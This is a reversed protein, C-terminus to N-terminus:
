AGHCKKYKKGSGCPCPDNRGVPPLPEAGAIPRVNVSPVDDTPTLMLADLEEFRGMDELLGTLQGFAEAEEIEDEALVLARRYCAEAAVVDGLAEYAGGSKMATLSSEPFQKLNAELQAIAEDRKGSEALIIPIDANFSEVAGFSFARAVALASDLEGVNVLGLPLEV